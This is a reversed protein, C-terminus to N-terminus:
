TLIYKKNGDICFSPFISIKLVADMKKRIMRYITCQQKLDNIKRTMSWWSVDEISKEDVARKSKLYRLPQSTRGIILWFQNNQGWGSWKKEISVQIKRRWYGTWDRKIILQSERLWCAAASGFPGLTSISATAMTPFM